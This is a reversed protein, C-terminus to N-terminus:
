LIKRRSVDVFIVKIFGNSQFNMKIKWRKNNTELKYRLYKSNSMAYM